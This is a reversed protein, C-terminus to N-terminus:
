LVNSNSSFTALVVQLRCTATTFLVHVHLIDSTRVVRFSVYSNTVQKRKKSTTQKTIEKKEATVTHCILNFMYLCLIVLTRAIQRFQDLEFTTYPKMSKTVPLGPPLVDSGAGSFM